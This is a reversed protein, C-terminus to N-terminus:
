SVRAATAASGVAPDKHPALSYAVNTPTLPKGDHFTVCKRVKFTWVTAKENEITEAFEPRLTLSADPRTLGSYFMQCSEYDASLTLRALGSTDATSTSFGAVRVHGGRKPADALARAARSVV